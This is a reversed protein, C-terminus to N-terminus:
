VFRLIYSSLYQFQPVDVFFSPYFWTSHSIKYECDKDPLINETTVKGELISADEKTCPAHIFPRQRLKAMLLEPTSRVDIFVTRPDEAIHKLEQKSNIGFAKKREEYPPFTTMHCAIRSYRGWGHHFTAKNFTVVQKGFVHIHRAHAAIQSVSKSTTLSMCYVLSSALITFRFPISQPRLRM